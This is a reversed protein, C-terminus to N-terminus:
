GMTHFTVFRSACNLPPFRVSYSVMLPRRCMPSPTTELSLGGPTEMVSSVCITQMSKVLLDKIQNSVKDIKSVIPLSAYVVVQQRSPRHTTFCRQKICAAEAPTVHPPEGSVAVQANTLSAPNVSPFVRAMSVLAEEKSPHKHKGLPTPAPLHAVLAAVLM